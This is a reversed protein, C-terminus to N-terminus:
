PGTAGRSGAGTGPLQAERANTAVVVGSWAEFREILPAMLSARRLVDPHSEHLDYAAEDTFLETVTLTGPRGLPSSLTWLLLDPEVADAAALLQALSERLEAAKGPRAAIHAVALFQPM